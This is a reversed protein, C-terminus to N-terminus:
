TRARRIRRLGGDILVLGAGWAAAVTAAGFGIAVGM